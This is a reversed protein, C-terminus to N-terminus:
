MIPEIEVRRNKARGEETANDAIPQSEGYGHAEIRSADIGHSVLYQRVSEARRQSLAENYKDSGTSDTHASLRVQRGPCRQLATVTEDLIMPANPALASKDHAFRVGELTVRESCPDPKAPAPPPTPAARPAPPPPARRPEPEPEEEMLSCILYGVGAGLAVGAAAIGVGILQNNDDDDHQDSYSAGGAGGGVLGVGGGIAACGAPTLDGNTACGALSVVLLLALGTRFPFSSRM